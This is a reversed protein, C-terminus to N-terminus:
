KHWTDLLFACLDTKNQPNAIYKALQKPIPTAPTQIKIELATSSGRKARKGAKISMSRYQDMIVDVRMCGKQAFPATILSYHKSALEGFTSVGGSKLMQVSAMGDILHATTMGQMPVPLTGQVDVKTEMESLLVSKTTKRLNGDSHVLSYPVTSLEYSLVEKLNIDRSKASIVLRGFLDRDAAVTITKDDSTKIKTKKALTTFTKIKLNPLANWFLVENTNLREEVFTTMQARGLEYCSLLRRTVDQPMVVGTAINILPLPDNSDNDVEDLSFPDTMLGSTITSLLKNVDGEDRKRRNPASEKHTGVRDSDQLGCMEKMATTIVAREHSTLFWRELAGPKQSIGIIGGKTKSDLNISQELAMDTWVQAFPQSSRSVAHNGNVFEKHIVPHTELLQNMDTIYVPLWRSYNPRDMAFFHPTMASTASLHLHWDSTREARIFQLLLQVMAVYDDWFAFLHSKSRAENRFTTFQQELEVMNQTLKDLNKKVDKGEQVAERCARTYEAVAEKDIGGGDNDSLWKIFAQWQLRFIAEMILRHARVGRNYSKGKLLLSATGSGDVGSEILLDEIGSGDYKKGLLSLYNIAVHFGGMRIVMNVFEEQLRWQIEKAKVYIALDFTIVSDKQGLSAMMAEVNKMVTYVTSSETPSGDVMPCYGVSTLTPICSHVMSSRCVNPTLEVEFLKTPCLRVLALALDMQCAASHLQGTCSFWDANIKGEYSRDGAGPEM